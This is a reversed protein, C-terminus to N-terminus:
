VEITVDNGQGYVKFNPEPNVAPGRVVGGTRMDFKSGNWPCTVVGQDLTGIELPGGLHTCVSRLADFKGDINGVLLKAGKVVFGKMTGPAIEDTGAVRITEPM